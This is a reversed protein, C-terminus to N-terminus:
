EMTLLIGQAQSATALDLATISDGGVEFFADEESFDSADQQIIQTWLARLQGKTPGIDVISALNITSWSGRKEWTATGSETCLDLLKLDTIELVDEAAADAKVHGGGWM